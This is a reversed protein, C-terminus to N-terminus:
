PKPSAESPIVGRDIMGFSATDKRGKRRIGKETRGIYARKQGESTHGKRDKRRIGKKTMGFSTLFRM